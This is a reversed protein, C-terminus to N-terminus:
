ANRVYGGFCVVLWLLQQEQGIGENDKPLPKDASLGFTALRHRAHAEIDALQALDVGYM